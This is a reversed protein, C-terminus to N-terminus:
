SALLAGLTRESVYAAVAGDDALMPKTSEALLAVLALEQVFVVHGFHGFTIEIRAEVRAVVLLAGEQVDVGLALDLVTRPVIPPETPVSRVAAMPVHAADEAGVVQRATTRVAGAALIHMRSELQGCRGILHLFLLLATRHNNTMKAILVAVFRNMAILHIRLTIAIQHHLLAVIIHLFLMVHIVTAANIIITLIIPMLDRGTRIQLLHQRLLQLIHRTILTTCFPMICIPTRLSM